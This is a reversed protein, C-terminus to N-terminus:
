QGPSGTRPTPEASQDLARSQYDFTSEFVRDVAILEGITAGSRLRDQLVHETDLLRRTRDLVDEAAEAPIVVVGNEDAVILDGPSVAQGACQVRVNVEGYGAIAAVNPV